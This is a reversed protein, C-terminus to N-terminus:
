NVAGLHFGWKVEFYGILWGRVASTSSAQTTVKSNWCPRSTQEDQCGM